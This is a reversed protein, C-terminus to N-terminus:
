ILLRVDLNTRNVGADIDVRYQGNALEPLRSGTNTDSGLGSM